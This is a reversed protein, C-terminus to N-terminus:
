KPRTPLRTTSARWRSCPSASSRTSRWARAKSSRLGYRTSRQRLASSAAPAASRSPSAPHARARRKGDPDEDGDRVRRRGLVEDADARVEEVRAGPLDGREADDLDRLIDGQGIAGRAGSQRTPEELLHEVVGGLPGADPREDPDASAGRLPDDLRGPLDVGVEEDEAPAPLRAPLAPRRRERRRDVGDDALRRTVDGDDLLPREALDPADEDRDAAPGVGLEGEFKGIRKGAAVVGADDDEVDDRRAHRAGDAGLGLVGKRGEELLMGPAM